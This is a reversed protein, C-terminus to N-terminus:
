SLWVISLPMGTHSKTRLQHADGLCLVLSAVLFLFNLAHSCGECLVALADADQFLVGFCGEGRSFVQLLFGAHPLLSGLRYSVGGKM